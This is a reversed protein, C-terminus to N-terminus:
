DINRKLKESSCQFLVIYCQVANSYHCEVATVNLKKTIFIYVYGWNKDHFHLCLWLAIYVSNFVDKKWQGKLQLTM